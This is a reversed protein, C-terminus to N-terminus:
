LLGKSQCSNVEDVRVDDDVLEFFGSYSKGQELINETKKKGKLDKKPDKKVDLEQPATVPLEGSFLEFDKLEGCDIARIKDQAAWEFLLGIDEQVEFETM